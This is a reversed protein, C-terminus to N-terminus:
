EGIELNNDLILNNLTKNYTKFEVITGKKTHKLYREIYYDGLDYILFLDKYDEGSLYCEKIFEHKKCYRINANFNNVCEGNITCPYESIYIDSGYYGSYDKIYYKSKSKAKFNFHEEDIGEIIQRFKVHDPDNNHAEANLLVWNNKTNFNIYDTKYHIPYEGKKTNSNIHNILSEKAISDFFNINNYIKYKYIESQAKEDNYIGKIKYTDDELLSLLIEYYDKGSIIYDLPESKIGTKEPRKKYYKSAYIDANFVGEVAISDNEVNLDQEGYYGHRKFEYACKNSGSEKDYYCNVGEAKLNNSILTTFISIMAVTIKKKM